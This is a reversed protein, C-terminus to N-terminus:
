SYPGPVVANTDEYSFVDVLQSWEGSTYLSTLHACLAPATQVGPLPGEGSGSWAPM